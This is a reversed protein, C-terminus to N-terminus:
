GDIVVEMTYIVEYMSESSIDAEEIDPALEESEFWAEALSEAQPDKTATYMEVVLDGLKVYNINDAKFDSRSSIYYVIYPPDPALGVPWQYYVYKDTAGIAKALDSMKDALETYTM